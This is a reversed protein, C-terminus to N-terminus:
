GSNCEQGASPSARSIASRRRSAACIQYQLLQLLGWYVTDILGYPPCSHSYPRVNFFSAQHLEYGLDVIPLAPSNQSLALRSFLLAPGALAIKRNKRLMVLRRGKQLM